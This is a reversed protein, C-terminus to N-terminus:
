RNVLILDPKRYRYGGSPGNKYTVMSFSRDEANKIVFGAKEVGNDLTGEEVGVYTGDGIEADSRNGDCDVEEGDEYASVLDQPQNKEILGHKVGLTHALHNLWDQITQETTTEPFNSFTQSTLDWCEGVDDLCRDNFSEPLLKDPFVEDRLWDLTAENVITPGVTNLLSNAITANVEKRLPEQNTSTVPRSHNNLTVSPFENAIYHTFRDPQLLTTLFSSPPYTPHNYRATTELFCNSNNKRQHVEELIEPNQIAKKPMNTPDFLSHHYDIDSDTESDTDFDSLNDLVGSSFCTTDLLIDAKGRPGRTVALPWLSPMLHSAKVIVHWHPDWSLSSLYPQAVYFMYM